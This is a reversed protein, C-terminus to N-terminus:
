EICVLWHLAIWIRASKILDIKILLKIFLRDIIIVIESLETYFQFSCVAPFM